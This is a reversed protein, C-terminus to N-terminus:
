VDYCGYNQTRTLQWLEGEEDPEYAALVTGQFPFLLLGSRTYIPFAGRKERERGTQTNKCIDANTLM